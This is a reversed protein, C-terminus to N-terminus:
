DEYLIHEKLSKFIANFVEIDSTAPLNLNIMYSVGLTAQRAKRAPPMETHESETKKPPEMPKVSEQDEDFSALNSLEIFTSAVTPIISDDDGAGTLAKLKSILQAKSLRHAYENVRYLDAYATQLQQGIIRRSQSSDRYQRYIETPVNGQDLFGLKKLLGPLARHSSSKMELVSTMYDQTFKPPVAAEKIKSFLTPISGYGNVYPPYNLSVRPKKEVENLKESAVASGNGNSLNPIELTEQINSDTM